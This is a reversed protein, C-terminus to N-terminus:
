IVDILTLLPSPDCPAAPTYEPKGDSTEPLVVKTYYWGMYPVWCRIVPGLATDIICTAPLNLDIDICNLNLAM